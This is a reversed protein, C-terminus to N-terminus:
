MSKPGGDIWWSPHTTTLINLSRNSPYSSRTRGAPGDLCLWADKIWTLRQCSDSECVVVFEFRDTVLPRGFESTLIQLVTLIQLFSSPMFKRGFIRGFMKSLRGLGLNYGPTYTILIFISHPVFKYTLQNRNRVQLVLQDARWKGDAIQRAGSEFRIAAERLDLLANDDSSVRLNLPLDREHAEREHNSVDTHGKSCIKASSIIFPIRKPPDFQHEFHQSGCASPRYRM